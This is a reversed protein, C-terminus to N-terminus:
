KVRSLKKFRKHLCHHGFESNQNLTHLDKRFILYYRELTCLKCTRSIPSFSQAKDIIKWQIEYKLKQEKLDWIHKSLETDAYKEKLKFSSKHNAYREKFTSATMGIYSEKFIQKTTDEHTVTAQYIVSDQKCLGDVPCPEATCKCTKSQNPPLKMSIIKKNHGSIIQHMNPTTRYSVKVTNRNFVKHLLHSKPFCSDVLALIKSGIRTTVATSYPPVFWITKRPRNKRTKNQTEENIKEFELTHSYGSDKLSKQFPASTQDFMEKNSSNLNLRKNVSLPINKLISPPHNSEKHVYFISPTHNSEKHVYLPINNPKNFTQYTGTTLDLTLDLINVTKLNSLITIGIGTSKLIQCIEKKKCEIQRASGRLAM